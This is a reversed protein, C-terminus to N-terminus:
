PMATLKAFFLSTPTGGIATAAPLWAAAAIASASGARAMYGVAGGPSCAQHAAPASPTNHVASAYRRNKRRMALRPGARAMVTVYRTGSKPTAHPTTIRPSSTVGEITAAPPLSGSQYQAQSPAAKSAHLAAVDTHTNILVKFAASIV